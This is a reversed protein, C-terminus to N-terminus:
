ARTGSPTLMNEVEVRLKSSRMPSPACSSVPTMVMVMSPMVSAGGSILTMVAPQMMAGIDQPALGMDILKATENQSMPIGGYLQWLYEGFTIQLILQELEGFKGEADLREAWGHMQRLSEVYTAVWALGHAATQNQEILTASVRDGDSVQARVVDKARELVSEAAGVAERAMSLLDNLILPKTMPASGDHPMAVNGM